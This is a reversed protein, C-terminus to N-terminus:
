KASPEHLSWFQFKVIFITRLIYSSLVLIFFINSFRPYLIDSEPFRLCSICHTFFCYIPYLSFNRSSSQNILVSVSISSSLWAEPSKSQICLLLLSFWGSVYVYSLDTQPSSHFVYGKRHRLYTHQPFVIFIDFTEYVIDCIDGELKFISVVNEKSVKVYWM